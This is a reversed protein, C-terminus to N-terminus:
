KRTTTISLKIYKKNKDYQITIIRGTQKLWDLYNSVISHNFAKNNVILMSITSTKKDLAQNLVQEAIQRMLNKAKIELEFDQQAELAEKLQKKQQIQQQTLKTKVRFTQQQSERWTILSLFSM